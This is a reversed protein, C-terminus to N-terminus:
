RQNELKKGGNTIDLIKSTKASANKKKQLDDDITAVTNYVLAAPQKLRLEICRFAVFYEYVSDSCLKNNRENSIAETPFRMMNITM